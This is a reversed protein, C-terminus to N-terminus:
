KYIYMYANRFWRFIDHVSITHCVNTELEYALTKFELSTEKYLIDQFEQVIALAMNINYTKDDSLFLFLILSLELM